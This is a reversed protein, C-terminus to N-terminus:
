FLLLLMIHAAWLQNNYWFLINVLQFYISINVRFLIFSLFHAPQNPLTDLLMTTVVREGRTSTLTTPLLMGLDPGRDSFCELLGQTQDTTFRRISNSTRSTRV